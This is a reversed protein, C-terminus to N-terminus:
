LQLNIVTVASEGVHISSYPTSLSILRHFTYRVTAVLTTSDVLWAAADKRRIKIWLVLIELEVEVDCCERKHGAKIVQGEFHEPIRTRPNEEDQITTARVITSLSIWTEWFRSCLFSQSPWNKNEYQQRQHHNPPPDKVALLFFRLTHRLRETWSPSSNLSAQPRM